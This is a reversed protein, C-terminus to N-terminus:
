FLSQGIEANTQGAAVLALIARERPTLKTGSAPHPGGADVALSMQSGAALAADGRGTRRRRSRRVVGSAGHEVLRTSGAMGMDSMGVVVTTPSTQKM